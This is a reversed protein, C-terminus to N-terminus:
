RGGSVRFSEGTIYSGADSALLLVAGVVERRRGFRKLITAERLKRVTEPMSKELERVMESDFTGPAVCNVRVQQSAWEMAMVVTLNELAAKTSNYPGVNPEPASAGISSVNV